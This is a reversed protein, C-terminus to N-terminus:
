SPWRDLMGSSVNPRPAVTRARPAASSFGFLLLCALLSSYRILNRGYRRAGESMLALQIKDGHIKQAYSEILGINLPMSCVLM